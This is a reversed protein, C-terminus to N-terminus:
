TSESETKPVGEFPPLMQSKRGVAAVVPVRGGGGGGVFGGVVVVPEAAPAALFELLM